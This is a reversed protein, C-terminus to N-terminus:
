FERVARRTVKQVNAALYIVYGASAV